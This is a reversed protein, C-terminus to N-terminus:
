EIYHELAKLWVAYGDGTMHVGDVSYNEPLDYDDTLMDHFIDIYTLEYANSLDKLANNLQEVSHNDIGTKSAVPLVSQVYIQSNPLAEKLQSMMLSYYTLTEDIDIGQRIDNIGIMIFVKDPNTNTVSDLRHLAGEVVDSDIGRNLVVYNPFFEEWNIRATISDGLFVIDSKTVNSLAFTTERQTYQANSMYDYHGSATVRKLSAFYGDRYLLFVLMLCLLVCLGGTLATSKPLKKM